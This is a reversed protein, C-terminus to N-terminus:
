ENVIERMLKDMAQVKDPLQHALNEQEAPDKSLDFLQSELTLGNEIDKNSLWDPTKGKFPRIYKWNAKRLALTFSEEILVARGKESKGMWVELQNQSDVVSEGIEQGTLSALSALLDIQSVLADSELHKIKGKWYIITPVRTGAEYASYKGGRFGGTPDHEGLLEVARDAYGDDLVPGNDSTFIILTNELLNQQELIQVIDGVVWDVQAIADGRPGMKSKGVFRENPMRPVHIDQFAYYLFFPKGSNNTIFAKAKKNFVFPFEEDVWQARKGGKMFGIRSIGNVITESHQPDAKQRLLGPRELGIPDPDINENYSVEIPDDLDLNVVRGNEVFVTPVRDGTAPILFSYDFGIENAGPSIKKNWDIEGHGLGLHWKGIVATQYGARKLMKPLTEQVPDILLPADGPLIEANNRFAYNGTLLAYRSPTCMSSSCHGDTFKIGGKALNDINPTEVGVAGYAGVDGYGLDDIYFIIVNPLEANAQKNGPACASLGAMLLACYISIRM